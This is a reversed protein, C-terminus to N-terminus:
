LGLAALADSPNAPPTAPKDDEMGDAPNESEGGSPTEPTLDLDGLGGVLGELASGHFNLANEAIDLQLWNKSVEREQGKDDKVTRTGDIFISDWQEKTPADWLLLKVAQTVDPVPVPTTEGSLPDEVMPAQILWNGDDDKMNAYVRDKQGEKKVSNHVVKILFPEGLMQAMHTIGDRGYLMKKFLKVFGAKDSLKKTLKVAITNTFTKKVGEVEVERQHKSGNLEFYLRVEDAPPKEKGQYPNQKRKGVEVYGIFRAPTLGAAPVEYEFDGGATTETQNELKETNAKAQSVLANIDM